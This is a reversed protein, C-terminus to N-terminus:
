DQAGPIVGPLRVRRSTRIDYGGLVDEQKMGEPVIIDMLPPLLYTDDLDSGLRDTAVGPGVPLIMLRDETPGERQLLSAANLSDSLDSASVAVVYSWGPDAPGGLFSDPVFFRVSRGRVRVETPFFVMDALDRTIEQRISKVDESTVRQGEERLDSKRNKALITRLADRTKYPRPTLIIAREWASAPDIDADRGPLASLNGSGPVHDMDIYIDLNFTYFGHRAVSDLATGINDIAVREPTKINTAFTAEFETGDKLSRATLKVIDLDGRDFVSLTPYRLSGDGHDDGRPDKLSFLM